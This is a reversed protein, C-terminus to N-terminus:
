CKSNKTECISRYSLIVFYSQIYVIYLYLFESSKSAMFFIFSIQSPFCASQALIKVLDYRLLPSFLNYEASISFSHGLVGCFNREVRHTSLSSSSVFTSCFRLISSHYHQILAEFPWIYGVLFCIFPFLLYFVAKFFITKWFNFIFCFFVFFILVVSPLFYCFSLYLLSKLHFLYRKFFCDFVLNKFGSHHSYWGFNSWCM